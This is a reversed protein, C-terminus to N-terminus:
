PTWEARRGQRRCRPVDRVARHETRRPRARSQPCLVKTERSVRARRWPNRARTRSPHRPPPNLQQPDRRRDRPSRGVPTDGQTEPKLCWSRSLAPTPPVPHVSEQPRTARRCPTRAQRRRVLLRPRPLRRGAAARRRRCSHRCPQTRWGADQTRGNARKGPARASRRPPPM